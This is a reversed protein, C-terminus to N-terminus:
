LFQAVYSCSAQLSYGQARAWNLGDMVLRKAVGKGRFEPPVYSYNFNIRNDGLLQYTLQAEATSHNLYGVFRQQDPQHVIAIDPEPM